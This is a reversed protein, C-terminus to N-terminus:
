AELSVVKHPAPQPASLPRPSPSPSKKSLNLPQSNAAIGVQLEVLKPSHGALAATLHSAHAGHGTSSPSCAPSRSLYIRSLESGPQSPPPSPSSTSNPALTSYPYPSTSASASAASTIVGSTASASPQWRQTAPPIYHHPYDGHGAMIYNHIIDTRKLQEATMRPGEMLSRALTSHTSSLSSTHSPPAPAAVHVPAPSPSAVVMPEAEASDKHRLARFKKHPKYAEDMLSNTDCLPPAQLVRKLVPMDEVHSPHSHEDKDELSSRPSSCVSTPASHAGLKDLKETGSEIGSDSPSDLKRPFRHHPQVLPRGSALAASLSMAHHQPDDDGSTSGSNARHRMPCGSAGLTGALTAALLPASSAHSSHHHSHHSHHSGHHSAPYPSDTLSAVEGSCVSESSSVSGLPSKVVEDMTVDSASSWSSSGAPSKSSDDAEGCMMGWMSGNHQSHSNLQQQQETMKFALLKESHLTNLTRLDPVKKMLDHVISMQGPHNQSVVVQLAQKLKLHMREVLETNRLGPRDPAVVVISCFLAIEADSLRLANLRDAFDFMSDMLFRANSSNHVSERKLVQGNLCVMSNTHSDFLCALRVLLVEFVGAKLLTVQDDQALHLFGPLKKAFEVVGRIAPSFRKSFDQLLEQQGSLPVPNPNLPCTLTPPCATYSPQERARVLMPEVKDRTFDCTDLHARVVTSFLASEDELEAAVAKEASRSNSSQQMAALIRAKERKPVRGFRVADRSMGVAICKKLRCYQCRNRNIRLISCQQNKTCPRYQIKQQISRRFFGQESACSCPGSDTPHDAPAPAPTPSCTCRSPPRSPPTTPRSASAAPPASSPGAQEPAPGSAAATEQEPTDVLDVVPVKNAVVMENLWLQLQRLQLEGVSPGQPQQPPAKLHQHLLSESCTLVAM